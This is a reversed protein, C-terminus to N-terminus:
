HMNYRQTPFLCFNIWEIQGKSFRKFLCRPCGQKTMLILEPRKTFERHIPCIITVKTKSNIYETKSYDYGDPLFTKCLDIFEATTYPKNPACCPCGNGNLHNKLLKYSIEM